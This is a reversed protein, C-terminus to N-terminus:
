GPRKHDAEVLETERAAGFRKEFLSRKRQVGAFFGPEDARVACALGREEGHQAAFQMRVRAVERQRRGPLDRM